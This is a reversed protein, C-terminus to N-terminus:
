WRCALRRCPLLRRRVPARAARRRAARRALRRCAAHDARGIQGILSAVFWLCLPMLAVATLRQVWWHGVGEKASGLGRVRGLPTRLSM